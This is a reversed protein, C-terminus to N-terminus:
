KIQMPNGYCLAGAPVDKTVVCGAGVKAHDGITVGPLIIANAGILVHNGINIEGIRYEDVLYEHCLLTANYGIICNDGITINEPFMLDPMAKYAFSTHKGLKMKLCKTYLFHKVKVSPCIRSCEIIIFQYAVKFFSITRYMQWISNPGEIKYQKYNRM